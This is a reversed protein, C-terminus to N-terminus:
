AAKRAKAAARNARRRAARRISRGGVPHVRLSRTLSKREEPTSSADRARIISARQEQEDAIQHITKGHFMALIKKLAIV